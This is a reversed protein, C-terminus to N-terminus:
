DDKRAELNKLAQIVQFRGQLRYIDVPDTASKLDRTAMDEYEKLWDKFVGWHKESNVLVRIDM